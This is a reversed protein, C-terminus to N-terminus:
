TAAFSGDPLPFVGSGCASQVTDAGVRLFVGVPKRHQKQIARLRAFHSDIGIIEDKKANQRRLPVIKKEIERM